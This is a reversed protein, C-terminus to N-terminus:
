SRAGGLADDERSGALLHPQFPSEANSLAPPDAPMRMTQAMIDGSRIIGRERRREAGATEPLRRWGLVLSPGAACREISPRAGAFPPASLLAELCFELNEAVIGAEDGVVVGVEVVDALVDRGLREEAMRCIEHAVSM